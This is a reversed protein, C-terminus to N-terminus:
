KKWAAFHEMLVLNKKVGRMIALFDKGGKSVPDKIAAGKGSGKGTQPNYGSFDQYKLGIFQRTFAPSRYEKTNKTSFKQFYLDKITGKADFAMFIQLGGYYGKQNVGHIYGILEKGKYIEYLSYPVDITEYMGSFKDGLQAEIKALLPKGGERAVSRYLTKYGTSGPFLRKVDKDPDNLDCGVAATLRVLAVLLMLIFWIKKM